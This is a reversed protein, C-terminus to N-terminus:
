ILLLLFFIKNNYVFTRPPPTVQVASYGVSDRQEGTKGFRRVREHCHARQLRAGLRRQCGVDTGKLLEGYQGTTPSYGTQFTKVGPDTSVVRKYQFSLDPDELEPAEFTIVTM